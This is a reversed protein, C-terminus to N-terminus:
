RVIQIEQHQVRKVFSRLGKCSSSCGTLKCVSLALEDCPRVAHWLRGAQCASFRVQESSTSGAANSQAANAGPPNSRSCGFCWLTMHAVHVVCCSHSVLVLQHSCSLLQFSTCEAEFDQSSCSLTHKFIAHNPKVNSHLLFM